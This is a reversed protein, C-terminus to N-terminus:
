CCFILRVLIAFGLIHWISDAPKFVSVLKCAVHDWLFRGVLLLVILILLDALLYALAEMGKKNDYQMGNFNETKNAGLADAFSIRLTDRFM